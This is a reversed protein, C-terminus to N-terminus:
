YPLVSFALWNSLQSVLQVVLDFAGMVVGAIAAWHLRESASRRWGIVGFVILAISFLVSVITIAASIVPFVGGGGAARFLFPTTIVLIAQLGLIILCILGPVNLPAQTPAYRPAPAYQPQPGSQQPQQYQPQAPGPQQYPPQEAPQYQQGPQPQYQQGPQAQGPQQQYQPQGTQGSQQYQPAYPPQPQASGDQRPTEPVTPDTTSM